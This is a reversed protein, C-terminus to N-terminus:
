LLNGNAKAPRREWARTTYTGGGGPFDFFNAVLVRQIIISCLLHYKSFIWGNSISERNGKLIKKQIQRHITCLMLEIRQTWTGGVSSGRFKFYFPTMRGDVINIYM